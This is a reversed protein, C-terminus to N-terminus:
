RERGARLDSRLTEALSPADQGTGDQGHADRERLAERRLRYGCDRMLGYLIRCGDDESDAEGQDALAILDQAIRLAEMLHRDSTDREKMTRGPNQGEHRDRAGEQVGSHHSEHTARRSLRPDPPM